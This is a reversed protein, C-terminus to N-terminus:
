CLNFIVSTTKHYAFQHRVQNTLAKDNRLFLPVRPGCVVIQNGKGTFFCDTKTAGYLIMFPYFLKSYLVHKAVLILAVELSFM